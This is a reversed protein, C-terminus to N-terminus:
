EGKPGTVGVPGTTGQSGTSGIGTPGTPGPCGRKGRPGEEGPRGVPGKLCKHASCSSQNCCSNGRCLSCKNKGEKVDCTATEKVRCACDKAVNGCVGCLNKRMREIKVRGEDRREDRREDRGELR